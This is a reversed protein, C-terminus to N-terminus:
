GHKTQAGDAYLDPVPFPFHFDGNSNGVQPIPGQFSTNLPDRAPGGIITPLICASSNRNDLIPTRGNSHFGLHIDDVASSASLSHWVLFDCLWESKKTQHYQWIRQTGISIADLDSCQGVM